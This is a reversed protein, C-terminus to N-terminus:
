YAISHDFSFTPTMAACDMLSDDISSSLDSADSTLNRVINRAYFCVYFGDLHMYYLASLEIILDLSYIPNSATM